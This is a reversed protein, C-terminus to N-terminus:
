VQMIREESSHCTTGEKGLAISVPHSVLVHPRPIIHLHSPHCHSNLLYFFPCKLHKSYGGIIPFLPLSECMSISPQARNSSSRRPRYQSCPLLLPLPFASLGVSDKDAPVKSNEVFFIPGERAERTPHAKPTPILIEANSSGHWRLQAPSKTCHSSHPDAQFATAWM